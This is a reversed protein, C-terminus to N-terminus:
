RSNGQRSNADTAAWTAYTKDPWRDQFWAIVDLIQEDSLVTDFAPMNGRGGPAGFKIQAGLAQLPHHWAHASGDLPPPPFLGDAGQKRWGFRAQANDGHCSACNQAYLAGGGRVQAPEYWRVLKAAAEPEGPQANVGPETTDSSTVAKTQAADDDSCATLAFMVFLVGGSISLRRIM